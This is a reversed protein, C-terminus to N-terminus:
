VTLCTGAHDRRTGQDIRFRAHFLQRIARLYLCGTSPHPGTVRRKGSESCSRLSDALAIMLAALAFLFTAGEIEM